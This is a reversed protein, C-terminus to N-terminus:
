LARRFCQTEPANLHKSGCFKKLKSRIIINQIVLDTIKSIATWDATCLALFNQSIIVPMVKASALYIKIFSTQQLTQSLSVCHQYSYQSMSKVESMGFFETWREPVSVRSCRGKTKKRTQARCACMYFTGRSNNLGCMQRDVSCICLLLIM